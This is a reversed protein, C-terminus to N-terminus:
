AVALVYYNFEQCLAGPLSQRTKAPEDGVGCTTAFLRQKGMSFAAFLHTTKM